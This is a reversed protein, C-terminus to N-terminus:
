LGVAQNTIVFPVGDSTLRIERTQDGLSLRISGSQLRSGGVWATGHLDFSFVSAGDFSADLDLGSDFDSSADILLPRGPQDPFDVGECRYRDQVLDFDITLTRGRNIACQRVYKVHSEISTAISRLQVAQVSGVFRPTTIAAIMGTILIVIVVEPFTM